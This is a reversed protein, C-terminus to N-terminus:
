FRNISVEDIMIHDMSIESRFIDAINSNIFNKAINEPVELIEGPKYYKNNYKITQLLILKISKERM